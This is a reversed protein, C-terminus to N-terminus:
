STNQNLVKKLVKKLNFRNLGQLNIQYRGGETESFNTIKGLCGINFFGGDEKKQIM